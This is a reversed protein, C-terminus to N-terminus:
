SATPQLAEFLQELGRGVTEEDDGILLLTAPGTQGLFVTRDTTVWKRGSDGISSSTVGTGQTKVGQFVKYARYFESSDPFSDWNIIAVLLREGEPGSLLSYRDGGWGAAAEEAQIEDLHEELYTRILFEGITNASVQVWGNGMRAALNPVTTFHPEEQAFYKDPHLAQETSVPPRAYAENVDEWGQNDTGFLEAM